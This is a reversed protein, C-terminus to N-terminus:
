LKYVYFNYKKLKIGNTIDIFEVSEYKKNYKRPLKGLIDMTTKIIFRQLSKKYLKKRNFFLRISFFVIWVVILTRLM